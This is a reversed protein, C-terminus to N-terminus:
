ASESGFGGYLPRRMAAIPKVGVFVCRHRTERRPPTLKQGLLAAM